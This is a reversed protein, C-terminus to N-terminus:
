SSPSSSSSSESFPFLDSVAVVSGGVFEGLTPRWIGCTDDCGSFSGPFSVGDPISALGVAEVGFKGTVAASALCSPSGDVANATLFSPFSADSEM